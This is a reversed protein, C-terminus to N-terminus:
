SSMNRLDPYLLNQKMRSHFFCRIRHFEPLPRSPGNAKRTRHVSIINSGLQFYFDKPCPIARYESTKSNLDFLRIELLSKMFENLTSKFARDWVMARSVGDNGQSM